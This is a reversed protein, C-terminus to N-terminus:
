WAPVSKSRSVTDPLAANAPSIENTWPSPNTGGLPPLKSTILKPEAVPENECVFTDPKGSPTVAVEATTPPVTRTVNARPEITIKQSPSPLSEFQVVLSFQDVFETGTGVSLTSIRSAPLGTTVGATPEVATRVSRTSRMTSSPVSTTSC